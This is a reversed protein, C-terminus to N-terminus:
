SLTPAGTCVTTELSGESGWEILQNMSNTVSKVMVERTITHM